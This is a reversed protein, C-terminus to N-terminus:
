SQWCRCRWESHRNPARRELARIEGDVCLAVSCWETSTELAAFRM